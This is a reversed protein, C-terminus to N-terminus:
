TKKRVKQCGYVSSRTTAVRYTRNINVLLKHFHIFCHHLLVRIKLVYTDAEDREIAELERIASRAAIFDNLYISLDAM